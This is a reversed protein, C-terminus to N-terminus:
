FSYSAALAIFDRDKLLNFDDGGFFGTYSIEGRWANLYTAGLMLTVAKRGEVFQGLPQPTTGDVDHAFAIAPQLNVPGIAGLFDARAVLRYGWSFEDAFGDTQTEPQVGLQTFLPNGSTFTGPGDFRLQDQDPLGPVWTAGVEGILVIQDAGLLPGTLHTATTQAQVVNERRYGSIEEDFGFSGLQNAGFLPSVPSLGAYLLEVDDVQLPQDVRYSVEGQLALDFLDLATNFSAGFLDIDEPFEAFYRATSAYDGSILGAPTGTRVSVLPLRSHHRIWYLGFETDNLASAFYRLAVGFQGQDAPDVDGSRPVFPGIPANIGAPLPLLDPIAGFGLFVRRGGPSIFDNTSFFTGAPELETQEFEFQYFAEISLNETVGANVDISPVPELADRIEAGAVRLQAVDVPNIINIGNPIFTSEGWSIVQEGARITLPMDGLEFDGTVYADLVEFDRGLRDEASDSFATRDPEIDMIAADYFYLARGFFSWGAWRVLLEHNVKARLSTLDGQDFNLNGDDVNVSSASGGNARGILGPDRNEIRWAAGLTVTTDFSGLVGTESAFELAQLPSTVLVMLSFAASSRVLAIRSQISDGHAHGCPERTSFFQEIKVSCLLM